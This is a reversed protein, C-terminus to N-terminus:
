IMWRKLHLIMPHLPEVSLFTSLFARSLRFNSFISDSVEFHLVKTNVERHSLLPLDSDLNRVIPPELKETDFANLSAMMEHYIAYKSQNDSM